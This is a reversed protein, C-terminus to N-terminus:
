DAFWARIQAQLCENAPTLAANARVAAIRSSSFLTIGGINRALAARLLTEAIVGRDISAAGTEAKFREALERDGQLRAAALAIQRGLVSHTILLADAAHPRVQEIGALPIQVITFVGPYRQLLGVTNEPAAALGIAQVKGAARMRELESVLDPTVDESEPEHLLLADLRDVMLKRLSTEVSRRVDNLAFRRIQPRATSQTAKALARSAFSPPEIGVKTVITLEANRGRAFEGMVEEGTGWGYLPATDFHRIGSEYAAALLALRERKSLTGSVPATGFGLKAKTKPAFAPKITFGETTPRTADATASKMHLAEAAAMVRSVRLLAFGCFTETPHLIRNM